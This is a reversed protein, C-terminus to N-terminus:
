RAASNLRLFFALSLIALCAAQFMFLEPWSPTELEFYMPQGETIAGSLKFFAVCLSVVFYLSVFLIIAGLVFRVFRCVGNMAKGSGLIAHLFGGDAM